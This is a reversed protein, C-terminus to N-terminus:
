LLHAPSLVGNVFNAYTLICLHTYLSLYVLGPPVAPTSNHVRTGAISITHSSLKKNYLIEQGASKM